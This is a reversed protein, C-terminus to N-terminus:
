KTTYNYTSVSRRYHTFLATTNSLSPFPCGQCPSCRRPLCSQFNCNTRIVRAAYKGRFRRSRSHAAGRCLAFKLSFVQADFQSGDVTNPDVIVRINNRANGLYLYLILVDTLFVYARFTENAADVMWTSVSVSFQTRPLARM